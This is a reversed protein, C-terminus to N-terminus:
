PWVERKLENEVETVMGPAARAVDEAAMTFMLHPKTGHRAIARAVIFASTNHRKAWGELAGVPPFHPKTGYEVYPAYKQNTLWSAWQPTAASDMDTKISARLFGNDAPCVKKARDEGVIIMKKLLRRTGESGVKALADRFAQLQAEDFQIEFQAM